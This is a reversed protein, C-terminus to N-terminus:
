EGARFLVGHKCHDFLGDNEDIARVDVGDQQFVPKIM